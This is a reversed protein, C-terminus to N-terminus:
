SNKSTKNKTKNKQKKKNTKNQKTKNQKGRTNHKLSSECYYCVYLITMTKRNRMCWYACLRFWSNNCDPHGISMFLTTGRPDIIHPARRASIWNLTTVSLRWAIGTLYQRPKMINANPQAVNACMGMLLPARLTTVVSLIMMTMVGIIVAMLIARFSIRQWTIPTKGTKLFYLNSNISFEM